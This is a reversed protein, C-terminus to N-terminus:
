ESRWFVVRVIPPLLLLDVVLAAGLTTGALIAFHRIANFDSLGMVAFGVLLLVTAYVVPRGAGREVQVLAEDLPVGPKWVERLRALLHVCADVAVGLSMCFIIVTAVRLEIDIIRMAALTALIPVANPLMAIVSMKLSRFLLAIFAFIVVLALGISMAMDRVINGLARSAIVQGGSLRVKVGDLQITDLHAQVRETFPNFLESGSDPALGMVRLMKGDPSLFPKLAGQKQEDPAMDFLLALQAIKEDSWTSPHSGAGEGALALDLSALVDAYSRATPGLEDAEVFRSVGAAARIVDPEMLRKRDDATFVVDFPLVGALKEELYRTAQLTPDSDPLESILKQNSSVGTALWTAVGLSVAAIALVIKRRALSFRTMRELATQVIRRTNHETNVAKPLPLLALGAPVLLMTAFFAGLVGVAADLGFERILKVDAVLASAFGLGTTTTTLLCPLTMHQVTRAVVDLRDQGELLMAEDQYRAVIHVADAIAIVLLLTIISNNVVNIHHGTIVLWAVAWLTATGTALFPLLVGRINRFLGFLLLAMVLVTIPVFTLQDRKLTAVIVTQSIPIGAIRIEVGPHAARVADLAAHIGAVVANKKKENGWTGGLQVTLGTVRGDASLILGRLTPDATARTLAAPDPKGADDFLPAYSLGTGDPVQMHALSRVEDVGDLKALRAHADVLAPGWVAGSEAELAVFAVTDGAGFAPVQEEMYFRLTDDSSLFIQDPSFNFQLGLVLWGAGLSVVGV